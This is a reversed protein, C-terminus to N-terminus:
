NIICVFVEGAKNAVESTLGVTMKMSDAVLEANWRVLSNIDLIDINREREVLKM